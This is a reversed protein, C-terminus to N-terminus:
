AIIGHSTNLCQQQSWIKHGRISTNGVKPVSWSVLGPAVTRVFKSCEERREQHQTLSVVDPQVCWFLRAEQLIHGSPPARLDDIDLVLFDNCSGCVM